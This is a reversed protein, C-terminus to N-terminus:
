VRHAAPAEVALTPGTEGARWDVDIARGTFMRPRGVAAPRDTTWRAPTALTLGALGRLARDYSSRLWAFRTWCAEVADAPVAVIDRLEDLAAEFEDRRLSIAPPDGTATLLEAPNASAEVPLSVAAAIRNLAPVGYALALVPIRTESTPDVDRNYSATALLLAAADLLSGHSAVWSQGPRSDPFYCLAPFATHTQDLDLLWQSATRWVDPNDLSNSRHLTQIFTVPSPPTGAFPRLVTIGRERASHGSYITPLYGILLAILGLGVIAEVFSLWVRSVGEPKSFGLTTLSSGSLEWAKSASGAGIGWFILSFGLAVALMWILPMTVLAAPAYLDRLQTERDESRWRHVLARNTVAFVCRAIRTFGKRPLVVTELASVLVALTLAVGAAVAIAKAVIVPRM